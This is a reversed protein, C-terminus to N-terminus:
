AFRKLEQDFAASVADLVANPDRHWFNTWSGMMNEGHSHAQASQEILTFLVDEVFTYVGDRIDLDELDDNPHRAVEAFSREWLWKWREDDSGGRAKDFASRLDSRHSEMFALMADFTKDYFEIEINRANRDPSGGSWGSAGTDALESGGFVMLLHGCDEHGNEGCIRCINPDEDPCGCPHREHCFECIDPM